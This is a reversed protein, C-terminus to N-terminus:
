CNIINGNFHIRNCVVLDDRYIGWVIIECFENIIKILMWVAILVFLIYGIHAKQTKYDGFYLM